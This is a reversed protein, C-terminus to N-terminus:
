ATSPLHPSVVCLVLPSLCSLSPMHRNRTTSLHPTRCQVRQSISRVDNNEKERTQRHSTSHHSIQSTIHNSIIHHSTIRHSTIYHTLSTDHSTNNDPAFAREKKERNQTTQRM